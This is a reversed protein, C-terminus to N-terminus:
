AVNRSGDDLTQLNSAGRNIANLQIDSAKTEFLNDTTSGELKKKDILRQLNPCRRAGGISTSSKKHVEAIKNRLASHDGVLGASTDARTMKEEIKSQIRELINISDLPKDVANIGSRDLKTNVQTKTHYNRGKVINKSILHAPQSKTAM